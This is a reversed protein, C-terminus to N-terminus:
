NMVRRVTASAEPRRAPNRRLLSLALCSRQPPSESLAASASDVSTASLRECKGVEGLSMGDPLGGIYGVVTVASVDRAHLFM